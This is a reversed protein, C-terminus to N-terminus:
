VYSPRSAQGFVHEVEKSLYRGKESIDPKTKEIAEMIAMGTDKHSAPRGHAPQPMQLPQLLLAAPSWNRPVGRTIM